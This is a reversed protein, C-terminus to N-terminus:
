YGGGYAAEAAARRMIEHTSYREDIQRKWAAMDADISRLIAERDVEPQSPATHARFVRFTAFTALAVIGLIALTALVRGSDQAATRDPGDTKTTNQM